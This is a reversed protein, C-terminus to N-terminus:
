QKGYRGFHWDSWCGTYFATYPLGLERLRAKVKDKTAFFGETAGDTIAGWESPVFLKAGEEKAIKAIEAQQEIGTNGVVSIVVDNGSLAARVSVDSSYDVVKPKVGRAAFEDHGQSQSLLKTLRLSM